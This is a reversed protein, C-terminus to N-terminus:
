PIEESAIVQAQNPEIRSKPKQGPRWSKAATLAELLAARQGENFTRVQPFAAAVMPTPKEPAPEAKPRVPEAIAKELVILRHRARSYATYALRQADPHRYAPALYIVVDVELGKFAHVTGIRVHDAKEEEWWDSVANLRWPGIMQGDKLGLTNPRHPALILVQRPQLADKALTALHTALDRRWGEPSSRQFMAAGDDPVNEPAEWGCAPFALCTARRLAPHQRLSLDLRWPQGLEHHVERYLSQASDELILVPDRKPDRLLGLLPLVWSPDLDQAEDVVLADWSGASRCEGKSLLENLGEPVQENFFRTQDECLPLRGGEQLLNVALDHYTSVLARDACLLDDLANQTAYTLAKNFALMLVRRGEAAWLRTVQRALLSKGSGPGGHVHFRGRSFNMALHDMLTRATLDQLRGEAELIQTLTAPPALQPTIADMLKRLQEPWVEHHRAEPTKRWTEWTAGGAVAERLALFPRQLKERTLIRCHPLDPGLAQGPQLPLVPLALVRTIQPVFGLGAEQLFRLLSYQQALLQEGPPEELVQERGQADKRVWHDGRPEVGRGKVEVIVLGLEPHVVLFDLERDRNTEADLLRLRM